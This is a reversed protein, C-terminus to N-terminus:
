PTLRCVKGGRVAARDARAMCPIQDEGEGREDACADRPRHAVPADPNGSEDSRKEEAGADTKMERLLVPVAMRMLGRLVLVSVRVVVSVM